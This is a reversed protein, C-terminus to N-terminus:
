FLSGILRAGFIRDLLGASERGPNAAAGGFKFRRSRCFPTWRGRSSLSLSFFFLTPSNFTPSVDRAMNSRSVGPGVNSNLKSGFYLCVSATIWLESLLSFREGGSMQLIFTIFSLVPPPSWDCNTASSSELKWERHVCDHCFWSLESYKWSIISAACWEPKWLTPPHSRQKSRGEVGVLGWRQVHKMECMYDNTSYESQNSWRKQKFFFFSNTQNKVEKGILEEEFNFLFCFRVRLFSKEGIRCMTGAAEGESAGSDGGSSSDGWLKFFERSFGIVMMSLFFIPTCTTRRSEVRREKHESVSRIWVSM